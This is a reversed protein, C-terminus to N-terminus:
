ESSLIVCSTGLLSHLILLWKVRFLSLIVCFVEWCATCFWCDSWESHLCFWLPAGLLSYLILLWKVRFTSLIVSNSGVPQLTDATVESQVYDSDCLLEWCATCYWCDNWESCLCFWVSCNGVPEVIDATVESQVYVSDCLLEWCATSYSSDRWDSWTKFM